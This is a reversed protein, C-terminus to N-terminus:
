ESGSFNSRMGSVLGELLRMVCTDIDRSIVGLGVLTLADEDAAAVVRFDFSEGEVGAFVPTMMRKISNMGSSSSGGNSERWRTGGRLGV